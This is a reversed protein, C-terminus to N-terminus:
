EAFAIKNRLSRRLSPAVIKVEIIQLDDDVEMTSPEIPTDLQEEVVM